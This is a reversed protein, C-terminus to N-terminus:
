YKNKEVSALCILLKGNALETSHLKKSECDRFIKVESMVLLEALQSISMHLTELHCELCYIRQRKCFRVIKLEHKEFKIM